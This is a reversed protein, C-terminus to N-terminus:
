PIPVGKYGCPEAASEEFLYRRDRHEALKEYCAAVSELEVRSKTHTLTPIIERIARAIERYCTSLHDAAAAAPESMPAAERDAVEPFILNILTRRADATPM